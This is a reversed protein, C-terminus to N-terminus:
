PHNVVLKYQEFLESFSESWNGRDWDKRSASLLASLKINAEKNEFSLLTQTLHFIDFASNETELKKLISPIVGTLGHTRAFDTYVEMSTFDSNEIQTQCVPTLDAGTEMAVHELIQYLVSESKDMDWYSDSIVHIHNHKLLSRLFVKGTKKPSEQIFQLALHGQISGDDELYQLVLKRYKPIYNHTVAAGFDWTHEVKGPTRYKKYLKKLHKRAKNDKYSSVALFYDYNFDSPSVTNLFDRFEPHPFYSIAEFSLKGLAKISEIDEERQYEALAVMAEPERRELAWKKIVEYNEPAAENRYFAHSLMFDVTDRQLIIAYLQKLRNRNHLYDEESISGSWQKGDLRLYLETAIPHHLVLCGSQSEVEDESELLQSFVTSIRDYKKDVLAWAAYGKVVSSKHELLKLLGEEDTLNRLREYREYQASKTSVMGVFRDELRGHKAISDTLELLVSDPNQANLHCFCVLLLSILLTKMANPYPGKRLAM